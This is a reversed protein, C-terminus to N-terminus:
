FKSFDWQARNTRIDYFFTTLKKV